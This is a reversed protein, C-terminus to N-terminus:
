EPDCVGDCVEIVEGTRFFHDMQDQAARTQRTEGHTDTAGNPPLNEYPGPDVGFDFETIASGVHPGAVTPVGWIEQYPTGVQVAGYARAMNAAGLTTVQADGIADQVLVQKVPSGPLVDDVTHQAYGSGEASDWLTQMLAMWFTVNEQDPYVALFLAFFPTFDASRPLLLSYPLGPVGLTGREIVPSLALYAAGLIGGQSNGYYWVTSTDVLAVEDGADDELMLAPDSALAGQMLSALLTFEVFGQQSREPIMRFEDIESAIMLTIADSDESKMGTWDCAFLVYGYRDALENLYGGDMEDHAGLLGHGYQLLKLPRPDTQATRPIRVTFPVSTEGNAYPMGDADRTLISGPGDFDTYLPATFHGKVVRWTHESVDDEISDIVYDPGDNGVRSLADDRMFVAKGTIGEKSAVHFDWALQLDSKSWGQAEIKAFIDGYLERRGEVDGDETPTGDRLAAFAESVAVPAGANTQLGKMAVIFRHGNALPAVPRITLMERGPFRNGGVDLEAFFPQREGTEADFVLIPSTDLLSDAIRDHGPVGQLSLDEFLTLIPGWPSFGDRENWADPSPQLGQLTIPLTTEGLHVRVGTPSTSDAREYFSSPFPMACHLPALPDCDSFAGPVVGSDKADDGSCAALLLLLSPSARM